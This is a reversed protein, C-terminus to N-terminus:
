FRTTNPVYVHNFSERVYFFLSLHLIVLVLVPNADFASGASTRLFFYNVNLGLKLTIAFSSLRVSSLKVVLVEIVLVALLIGLLLAFTAYVEVIRHQLRLVFWIAVNLIGLALPSSWFFFGLLLGFGLHSLLLVDVSTVLWSSLLFGCVLIIIISFILVTSFKSLWLLFLLLLLCIMLSGRHLLIETPRLSM